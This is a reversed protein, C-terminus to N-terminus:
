GASNHHSRAYVSMGILAIGISCFALVFWGVDRPSLTYLRIVYIKVRSVMVALAGYTKTCSLLMIHRASKCNM